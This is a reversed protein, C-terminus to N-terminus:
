CCAPIEWHLDASRDPSILGMRALVIRARRSPYATLFGCGRADLYAGSMGRFRPVEDFQAATVDLIERRPGTLFWHTCIQGHWLMGVRMPRWGGDRGGLAHYLAESAVYCHGALQNPDGRWPARRLEDTLSALCRDILDDAIPATIM